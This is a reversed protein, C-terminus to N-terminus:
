ESEPLNAAVHHGLTVVKTDHGGGPWLGPNKWMTPSLIFNRNSAKPAAM